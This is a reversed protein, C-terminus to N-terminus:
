WCPSVSAGCRSTCSRRTTPAPTAPTPPRHAPDIKCRGRCTADAQRVAGPQVLQGLPRHAQALAIGPAVADACAPLPIGRRRCGIWAGLAGLAIAGWIGLGGQWVKFADVWDRGEGFYLQYDTIVHYLRGGVLGFPVAWVAIDAVTGANGGRAVWRKSASGSPSSSASSSASRTAACRSRDSTSWM